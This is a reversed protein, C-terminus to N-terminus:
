NLGQFSNPLCDYKSKYGKKIDWIWKLDDCLVMSGASEGIYIGNKLFKMLYQKFNCAWMDDILIRPNGGMVYVIDYLFINSINDKNIEIIDM